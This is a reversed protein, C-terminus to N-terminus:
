IENNLQKLASEIIIKNLWEYRSLNSNTIAKIALQKTEETVGELKGYLRTKLTGGRKGPILYELNAELESSDKVTFEIIHIIGNLIWRLKLNNINNPLIDM